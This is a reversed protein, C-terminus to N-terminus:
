SRCIKRLKCSSGTKEYAGSNKGNQSKREPYVRYRSRTRRVIDAVSEPNWVDCISTRKCRKRVSPCGLFYFLLTGTCKGAAIAIIIAPFGETLRIRRSFVPFVDAVEALALIWTGLFIGSFVGYLILFPVGLPLSIEFIWFLNGLVFGLLTMDEYLLISDATHTIGAYRPLISLGIMLGVAGGAIIVGSCIGAFGLFIQQWM